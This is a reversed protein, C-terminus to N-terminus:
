FFTKVYLEQSGAHSCAFTPSLYRLQAFKGWDKVLRRCRGLWTFTREVVWRRPLVEFGKAKDTRRVIEQTFTGSTQM